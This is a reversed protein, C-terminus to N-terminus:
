VRNWAGVVGSGESAGRVCSVSYRAPDRSNQTDLNTEAHVGCRTNECERVKNAKDCEAQLEGVFLKIESGQIYGHEFQKKAETLKHMVKDCENETDQVVPARSEQSLSNLKLINIYLFM